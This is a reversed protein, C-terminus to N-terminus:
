KGGLRFVMQTPRVFYLAAVLILLVIAMYIVAMADVSYIPRMGPGYAVDVGELVARGVRAGTVM